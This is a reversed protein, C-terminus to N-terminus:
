RPARTRERERVHNSTHLTPLITHAHAGFTVVHLKSMGLAIERATATAMTWFNFEGATTFCCDREETSIGYLYGARMNHTHTHTQACKFSHRTTTLAFMIEGCEM